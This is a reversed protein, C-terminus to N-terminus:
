NLERTLHKPNNVVEAELEKHLDNLRFLGLKISSSGANVTLIIKQDNM